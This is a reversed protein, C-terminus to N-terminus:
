LEETSTIKVKAAMWCSDRIRQISWLTRRSGHPSVNNTFCNVFVNIRDDKSTIDSISLISVELCVTGKFRAYYVEVLCADRDNSDRAVVVGLEKRTHNIVNSKVGEM